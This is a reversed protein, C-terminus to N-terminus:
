TQWSKQYNFKYSNWGLLNIATLGFSILQLNDRRVLEVEFRNRASEALPCSVEMQYMLIYKAYYELLFFERKFVRQFVRLTNRFRSELHTEVACCLDFKDKVIRYIRSLDRTPEELYRIKGCYGCFPRSKSKFSKSADGLLFCKRCCKWNNIQRSAATRTVCSASNRSTDSERQSFITNREPIDPRYIYRAHFCRADSFGRSFTKGSCKWSREIRRSKMPETPELPFAPPSSSM